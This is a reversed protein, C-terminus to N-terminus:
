QKVQFVELRDCLFDTGETLPHASKLLPELV